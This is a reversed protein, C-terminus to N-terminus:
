RRDEIIMESMSPGEGRLKYTRKPLRPKGSGGSIIGAAELRALKEDLTEEQKPAAKVTAVVKGRRTVAIEEGKSARDIYQSLHDKLERISVTTMTAVNYAM